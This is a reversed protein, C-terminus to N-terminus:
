KIVEYKTWYLQNDKEEFTLKYTYGNDIYDELKQGDTSLNNFEMGTQDTYNFQAISGKIFDNGKYVYGQTDRYIAKIYITYINDSKEVKTIKKTVTAGPGELGTAIVHYIGTNTDYHYPFFCDYQNYYTTKMLDQHEITENNDFVQRFGTEIADKTYSSTGNKTDDVDSTANRHALCIKLDNNLGNMSDLKDEKIWFFLNGVKEEVQDIKDFDLTYNETTTNDVTITKTDDKKFYKDYGLYCVAGMLLIILIVLLAITSKKENNKSGGNDLIKEDM